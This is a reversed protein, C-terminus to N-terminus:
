QLSRVTEATVRLAHLARGVDEAAAIGMCLAYVGWGLAVTAVGLVALRM